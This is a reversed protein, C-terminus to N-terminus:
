FTVVPANAPVRGYIESEYWEVIEPRRVNRWTEADRVPQGSRLVLPDPLTYSGVNREDYNSIHGTVAYRIPNGASDQTPRAPDPRNPTQASLTASSSGLLALLVATRLVM